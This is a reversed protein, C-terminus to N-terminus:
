GALVIRQAYAAVQTPPAHRCTRILTASLNAGLTGNGVTLLLRVWGFGNNIDLASAELDISAYKNDDTASFQTIATGTVTKVGTGASDTAQQILADVTTDTAGMNVIAFLRIADLMSLWGSNVSANNTLAPKIVDILHRDSLTRNM